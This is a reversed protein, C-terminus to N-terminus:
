QRIGKLLRQKEEDLIEKILPVIKPLLLVSTQQMAEQFLTPTLDVMKQGTPSKYFAILARVEDETFYKDYLPIIVQQSIEAMNLRKPFLERMRGYVRASSELLLKKVAAQDKNQVEPIDNMMQALMNPLNSQMQALMADMVSETQKDVKLLTYLEKILARKEPKVTEQANAAVLACLMWGLALMPLKVKKSFM